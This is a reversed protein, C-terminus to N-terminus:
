RRSSSGVRRKSVKSSTPPFAHLVQQIATHIDRLTKETLVARSKTSASWMSITNLTLIANSDYVYQLDINLGASVYSRATVARLEKDTLTKSALHPTNTEAQSKKLGRGDAKNKHRELRRGGPLQDEQDQVEAEDEEPIEHTGADNDESADEDEDNEPMNEFAAKPGRPRIVGLRRIVRSMNAVNMAMHVRVVSVKLDLM